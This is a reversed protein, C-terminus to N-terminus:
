DDGGFPQKRLNGLGYLAENMEKQQKEGTTEISSTGQSNISSAMGETVPEWQLGDSGPKVRFAEVLTHALGPNTRWAQTSGAERVGDVSVLILGDTEM